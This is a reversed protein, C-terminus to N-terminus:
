ARRKPWPSPDVAGIMEDTLTHLLASKIDASALDDWLNHTEDPDAALDYLEGWDQGRYVSLRHTETLLTRLNARNKFGPKPQSDEHEILLQDRLSGGGDLVRALDRGQIGHYPLMGTRAIVTPAIDLSSCLADCETGNRDDRPDAWIFAVRNVARLPVPGKLLMSFDGLYEGHDSNFIVITDDAHGADRLAALIDGVADDIMTVMGASLAMAERIETERAGFLDMGRTFRTEDLLQEHCAKIHPPPNKHASYPLRVEFQDPSYMDWYKGPPNFPHHPDPFSVFAFFPQDSGAQAGLYDVARDKIYSTSYLEAPMPTRYAQPCSYNHPLENKRDLLDAWDDRQKRLWQIYHGGCKDGHGTVMDIHDFGYYPTPFDFYADDEYNSPEELDYREGDPKRADRLADSRPPEPEGMNTVIESMPQIHSKGILATKYGGDRLVDVFTAQNRPLPLGNHRLGHVSPYRGTFISGRNPMCVPSAVNFNTFKVGRNALGDIHPTKVVKHGYCGLWDARHQDTLIMLINPRKSM